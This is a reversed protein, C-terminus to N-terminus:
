TLQTIQLKYIPSGIGNSSILGRQFLSKIAVRVVRERVLGLYDGFVQVPYDGVMFDGRDALIMLLNQSISKVASEELSELRETVTGGFGEFALQGTDKREELTNQWKAESRAVADAFYWAGHKHRTGFVLYYVPRHGIDRRVPVAQMFMKASSGLRQTYGNVVQSEAFEKNYLGRYSERWWDGGVTLDMHALASEASRLASAKLGPAVLGGIRRVAEASFNLLIETAAYNPGTAPRLRSLAHSLKSFPLGLGCPDLFIFLPLRFAATVVREFEEEINGELVFINLRPVKKYSEIEKRLYKITEPEKEILYVDVAIKLRMVLTSAIQVMQLASGPAGSLYRGAGAYGDLLVVKGWASGVKAVFPPLYGSLIEHKLLAPSKEEDWFGASTGTAM